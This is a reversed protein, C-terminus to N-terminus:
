KRNLQDESITRADRTDPSIHACARRDVQSCASHTGPLTLLKRLEPSRAGGSRVEVRVADFTRDFQGRVRPGGVIGEERPKTCRAGSLTMM